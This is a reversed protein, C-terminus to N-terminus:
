SSDLSTQFCPAKFSKLLTPSSPFFRYAPDFATWTKAANRVFNLYDEGQYLRKLLRVPVLLSIPLVSPMNFKM